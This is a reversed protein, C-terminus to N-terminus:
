PFCPSCQVIGFLLYLIPGETLCIFQLLASSCHRLKTLDMFLVEDDPCFPFVLPIRDMSKNEMNGQVTLFVSAVTSGGENSAVCNYEGADLLKVVKVELSLNSMMRIRSSEVLTLDRNNRHWTLNYRVTSVTLCTLIARDGPTVTVNNPVQIIPPPETLFFFSSLSMRIM